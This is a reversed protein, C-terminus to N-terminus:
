NLFNIIEGLNNVKNINKIKKFIIKSKDQIIIDKNLLIKNKNFMNPLYTDVHKSYIGKIFFSKYNKNLLFACGNKILYNLFKDNNNILFCKYGRQNASLIDSFWNDGIFIYQTFICKKIKMEILNFINDDPKVIGISCSLLIFDIYKELEFKEILKKYPTYLNSIIFIVSDNKVENIFKYFYCNISCNEIFFDIYKKTIKEKYKDRIDIKLLLYLDDFNKINNKLLINRQEKFDINCDDVFLAFPYGCCFLNYIREEFELQNDNIWKKILSIDPPIILTNILDLCILYKKNVERRM